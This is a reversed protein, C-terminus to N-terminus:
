PVIAASASEATGQADVGKRDKLFCNAGQGPIYDTLNSNYTVAACWSSRSPNANWTVCAEMCDEFTYKITKSIDKVQGNGDAAPDNQYWDTFCYTTFRTKQDKAAYTRPDKYTCSNASTGTTGSTAIAPNGSTATIANGAPLTPSATQTHQASNSSSSRRLGLGLGVGLGVALVVLAATFFFIMWVKASSYPKKPPAPGLSVIAPPSPSAYTSGDPSFREEERSVPWKQGLVHHYPAQPSGHEPDMFQPQAYTQPPSHPHQFPPSPAYAAQEPVHIPAEQHSPMPPSPRPGRPPVSATHPHSSAIRRTSAIELGYSDKLGYHSRDSQLIKQQPTFPVAYADHHVDHGSARSGDAAEPASTM